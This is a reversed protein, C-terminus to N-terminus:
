VGRPKVMLILKNKLAEQNKPDLTLVLDTYKKADQLNNQKLFISVLINCAEIKIDVPTNIDNTVKILEQLGAEINGKNILITGHLYLLTPNEPFGYLGNNIAKCANDIDRLKLYTTALLIYPEPSKQLVTSIKYYKLANQYDGKSVELLQGYAKFIEGDSSPKSIAEKLYKEYNTFDKLKLYCVAIAFNITPGPSILNSKEYFSLAQNFDNMQFYLTGLNKYVLSRIQSDPRSIKLAKLLYKLQLNQNKLIEYNTAIRIFAKTLISKRDLEYTRFIAPETISANSSHIFKKLINTSEKLLRIKKNENEQCIALNYTWIGKKFLSKSAQITSSFLSSSDKWDNIRFLARISLLISLIVLGTILFKRKSLNLLTAIIGLIIFASGIYNYREGTLSYLPIIQLFPSMTILYLLLGFSLLPLKNRFLLISFFFLILLFICFLNFSGLFTKDLTLLDIQDISLKLPFFILKLQHLFIQPTFFLIREFMQILNNHSTNELFKQLLSIRLIWYGLIIIFSPISIMFAKQLADSKKCLFNLQYYVTLLIAFPITITHEILLIQVTTMLVIFIVPINLDARKNILSAIKYLTYFYIVIGLLAPWNTAWIVSEVNTPHLAWILGSFLAIKQNQCLEYSFKTFYYIVSCHLILGLLHFLFPKAHFLFNVLYFLPRELICFHVNQISSFTFGHAQTIGHCDLLIYRKLYENFTKNVYFNKILSDEDFNRFGYFLSIFYVLITITIPIILYYYETKVKNLFKKM